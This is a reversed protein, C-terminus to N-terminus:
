NHRGGGGTSKSKLFPWARIMDFTPIGETICVVLEIGADAAEMVADSAFPTPVFIVSANAATKQRAEDVTNFVPIGDHTAGGKGPTVGGVVNTGYAKCQLTHFTGERGTIGQVILRTNKDVLISLGPEKQIVFM